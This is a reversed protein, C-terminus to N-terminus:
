ITSQLEDLFEAELGPAEVSYWRLVEDLERQAAELFRYPIM